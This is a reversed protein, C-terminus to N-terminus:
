FRDDVNLVDVNLKRSKGLLDHRASDDLVQLAFFVGHKWGQENGHHVACQGLISWGVRAAEHFIARCHQCHLESIIAVKEVDWATAGIAVLWRGPRRLALGKLLRAVLDRDALKQGGDAPAESDVVAVQLPGAGPLTRVM